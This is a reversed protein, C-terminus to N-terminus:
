SHISLSHIMRIYKFYFHTHPFGLIAMLYVRRCRRLSIYACSSFGIIECECSSMSMTLASHFHTETCFPYREINTNVKFSSMYLFHVCVVNVTTTHTNLLYIISVNICISIYLPHSNSIIYVFLPRRFLIIPCIWM